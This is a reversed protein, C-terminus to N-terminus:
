SNIPLSSHRVAIINVEDSNPISYIIRYNEILLERLSNLNLEPVKRGSRPFNELQLSKELLLDIIFDAYIISTSAHYEWIENLDEEAQFTWTIKAM